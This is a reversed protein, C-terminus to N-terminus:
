SDPKVITLTVENSTAGDNNAIYIIETQAAYWKKYELEARTSSKIAGVVGPGDKYAVVGNVDFGTGTIVITNDKDNVVRSPEISTIKPGSGSTGSEVTASEKVSPTTDDSGGSFIAIALFVVVVISVIWIWAKM